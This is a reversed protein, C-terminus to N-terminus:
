KLNLVNKMMLYLLNEWEQSEKQTLKDLTIKSLSFLTYFTLLLIDNTNDRELEIFGHYIDVM